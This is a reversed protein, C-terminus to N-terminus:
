SVKIFACNTPKKKKPHIQWNRLYIGVSRHWCIMQHNIYIINICMHIYTRTYKCTHKYKYIYVCTYKNCICVYILAHIYLCINIRLVCARWTITHIQAHKYICVIHTYIYKWLHDLICAFDCKTVPGSALLVSKNTHRASTASHRRNHLSISERQMTCYFRLRTQLNHCQQQVRARIRRSRRITYQIHHQTSMNAEHTKHNRIYKAGTQM